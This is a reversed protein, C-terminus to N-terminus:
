QAPFWYEDMTQVAKLAQHLPQTQYPRAAEQAVETQSAQQVQLCICLSACSACTPAFRFKSTSYYLRYITSDITSRLMATKEV